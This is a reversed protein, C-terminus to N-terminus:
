RTMHYTSSRLGSNLVGSAGHTKVDLVRAGRSELLRIVDDEPIFSMAIPLLHLRRYLFPASLGLRRLGLYLRRRWQLRFIGPIHSPLQFVALGGPRLVRCFDAIYSEIASRDPVHQLAITSYLFDFSEDEFRSLDDARNVVFSVGSVGANLERARMVMSESIDVGVCEDFHRAFARTLRGLGCGFDLARGRERPHGLEDARAMVGDAETTGTAFFDASEWRGFRKDPRTLVAWYPDLEALENWDREQEQVRLVRCRLL